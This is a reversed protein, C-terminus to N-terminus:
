YTAFANDLYCWFWKENPEASSIVPHKTAHFHATAHKNKSDDCCLTVGCEQCTRLHVWDDGLKICEECIHETATKIKSITKIHHCYKQQM